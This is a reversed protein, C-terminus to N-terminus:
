IGLSAELQSIWEVGAELLPQFGSAQVHKAGM